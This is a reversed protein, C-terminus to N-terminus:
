KRKILKLLQQIEGLQLLWSALLYVIGGTTGGIILQFWLNELPLILLTAWIAAYMGMGALSMQGIGLLLRRTDLRGLKRRLLFWLVGVEIINSISFGLALGGLARLGFRPFFQLSLWASLVLMFGIQVAGALVPTWTDSMAFFARNVVELATIAIM